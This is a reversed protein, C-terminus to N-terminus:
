GGGTSSTTGDTGTGGPPDEEPPVCAPDDAPISPDHECAPVCAPDDAPLDPDTPCPEFCGPDDATLDPDHPCPDPEDICPPQPDGPPLRCVALRLTETARPGSPGDLQVRVEFTGHGRDDLQREGYAITHAGGDCSTYPTGDVEFTWRSTGYLQLCPVGAGDHRVEVVKVERGGVGSRRTEYRATRARALQTAVAPAVEAVIVRGAPNLDVTRPNPAASGGGRFHVVPAVTCARAV